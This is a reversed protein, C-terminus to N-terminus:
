RLRHLFPQKGLVVNLQFKEKIGCFNKFWPNHSKCLDWSDSKYRWLDWDWGYHRSDHRNTVVALIGAM